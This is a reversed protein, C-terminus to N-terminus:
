SSRQPSHVQIRYLDQLRVPMSTSGKGGWVYLHGTEHDMCSAHFYRAPPLVKEDSNCIATWTKNELDYEYFDNFCEERDTGGFMYAKLGDLSACITHAFRGSPGSTTPSPCSSTISSARSPDDQLLSWRNTSFNFLYLDSLQYNMKEAGGFLMLETTFPIVAVAHKYRPSPWRGFYRLKECSNGNIDIAYLDQSFSKSGAGGFLYIKDQFIVSSHGYRPAIVDGQLDLKRWHYNKFDFEHVDGKVTSGLGCTIFMKGSAYDVNAGHSSRASPARGSTQPKSWKFTKLDLVFLDNTPRGDNGQGGFLYIKREYCVMSHGSLPGPVITGGDDENDAAAVGVRDTINQWKWLVGDDHDKWKADDNLTNDNNNSVPNVNNNTLTVVQTM